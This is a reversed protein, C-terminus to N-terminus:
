RKFRTSKMVQIAKQMLPAKKKKLVAPSPHHAAARAVPPPTPVVDKASVGPTNGGVFAKSVIEQKNPNKGTPTSNGTGYKAQKRAVNRPPKVVADVYALKAQRVPTSKAMSQTINATLAKLKKEREELCRLYLERWTELDQRRESRFDKSCHFKWLEDTDEILYPNFHELVYLQDANLKELLPKLLNYPVGGTYEVADINDYLLQICLSFLSPVTSQYVKNGSFVKTRQNKTTMITFMDEETMTKSARRSSEPIHPLPKYNLNIEPLTNSIDLDLAELKIKKSLLEPPEVLEDITKPKSSNSLKSNSGENKTSHGSSSHSSHSKTPKSTKNSSSSSSTSSSSPKKKKKPESFSDMGLLADAFSAGSGSDISGDENTELKINKACPVSKPMAFDEKEKKVKKENEKILEKYDPSNPKKSSQKGSKSNSKTSHDKSKEREKYKDKQEKCKVESKEKYHSSNSNKHHSSKHKSRHRHDSSSSSDSESASNSNESDEDVERDSHNAQSNVSVASAESEDSSSSEDESESKVPEKKKSSEASIHNRSHSHQKKHKKYPPSDEPESRQKNDHHSKHNKHSNDRKESVHNSSSSLSNHSKKNSSHNKDNSKDHSKTSSQSKSEPPYSKSESHHKKNDSHNRSSGKEKSSYRDIKQESKIATSSVNPPRAPPSSIKIEQSKNPSIENAEDSSEEAAVMAKWKAVLAKAAEGVEGKYKRLSNVSRGVGTEQLHEVKIPLVYLRQICRIMRESNNPCKEIDKQYHKIQDVLSKGSM